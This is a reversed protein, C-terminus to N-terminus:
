YKGRKSSYIYIILKDKFHQHYSSLQLDINMLHVCKYRFKRHYIFFNKTIKKFKNLFSVTYEKENKNSKIQTHDQNVYMVLALQSIFACKPFVKRFVCMFSIDKQITQLIDDFVDYEVLKYTRFGFLFKQYFLLQLFIAIFLYCENSIFIHKIVLISYM